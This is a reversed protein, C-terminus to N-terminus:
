HNVNFNNFGDALAIILLVSLATDQLGNEIPQLGGAFSLKLNGSSGAALQLYQSM